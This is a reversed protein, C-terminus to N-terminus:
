RTPMTKLRSAILADLYEATPEEDAKPGTKAKPHRNRIAPHDYCPRCLGRAHLCYLPRKCNACTPKRRGSRDTRGDPYQNRIVPNNACARCLRRCHPRRPRHCHPCLWM